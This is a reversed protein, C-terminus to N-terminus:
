RRSVRYPRIGFDKLESVVKGTQDLESIRQTNLNPVLTHGNAMRHPMGLCQIAAEMVTKGDASYEM